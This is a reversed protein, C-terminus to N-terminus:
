QPTHISTKLWNRLSELQEETHFYHEGNEVRDVAASNKEAFASIEDWHTLDDKTGYLIGTPM